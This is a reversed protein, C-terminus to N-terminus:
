ILSNQFLSMYAHCIFSMFFCLYIFIYQKKERHVSCKIFLFLYVKVSCFSKFNRKKKLFNSSELNTIKKLFYLLALFQIINIIDAPWSIMPIWPNGLHFFYSFYLYYLIKKVIIFSVSWLSWIRSFKLLNSILNYLFQLFYFM